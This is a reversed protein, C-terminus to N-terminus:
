ELAECIMRLARPRTLYGTHTIKEIERNDAGDMMATEAPLMLIDSRSWFTILKPYHAPWPRQAALKKWIASDPRLDLARSTALFRAALTGQHPTAITLFTGIRVAFDPDLLALRAVLGGMSHAVLDIKADPPLLNVRAIEVVANRLQLAAEDLPQADDYGFAYFRSRGLLRLFVRLGFFNRPHGSLGHICVVPRRGDHPLAVINLKRSGLMMPAFLPLDAVHKRVDPDIALYADAVKKGVFIAARSTARGITGFIKAGSSSM